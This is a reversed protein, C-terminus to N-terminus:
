QAISSLDLRCDALLSKRHAHLTKWWLATFLTKERPRIQREFGIMQMDIPATPPAPITFDQNRRAMNWM